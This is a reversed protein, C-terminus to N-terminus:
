FGSNLHNLKKDVTKLNDYIENLTLAFEWSAM